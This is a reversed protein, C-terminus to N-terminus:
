NSLTGYSLAKSAQRDCWVNYIEDRSLQQQALDDISEWKGKDSHSRVWQTATPLSRSIKNHSLFLDVNPERHSCLSTFSTHMCRNTMGKDDCIMDLKRNTCHFQLLMQTIISVATLGQLKGRGASIKPPFGHVMDSGSVHMESNTIDSIDGTSIIWAHSGRTSQFSADSSCFICKDTPINDIIAKGNDTPFTVSGCLEQLSTPLNYFAEELTTSIRPNPETGDEYLFKGVIQLGNTTFHTDVLYFKTTDFTLDCIYPISHYVTTNHSRSKVSIPYKTLADGDYKYLHPTESHKFFLPTFRHNVRPPWPTQIPGMNPIVHLKLFAGWLKWYHKPPRDPTPWLLSSKRSPPREGMLYSPHITTTDHLLLDGLSIVQLYIRCQDSGQSDYTNTAIEM